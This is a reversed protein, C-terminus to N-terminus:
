SLCSKKKGRSNVNVKKSQLLLQAFASNKEYPDFHNIRLRRLSRCIVAAFIVIKTNTPRREDLKFM